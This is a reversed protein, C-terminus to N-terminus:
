QSRTMVLGCTWTESDFWVELVQGRTTQAFSKDPDDQAVDSYLKDFKEFLKGDPPGCPIPANWIASLCYM